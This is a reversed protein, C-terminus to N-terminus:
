NVSGGAHANMRALIDSLREVVSRMRDSVRITELLRYQADVDGAIMAALRNSFVAPDPHKELEESVFSALRPNVSRMTLLLARISQLSEATKSEDGPEDPVEVARVLRYPQEPAYENVIRARLMGDLVILYRGDTLEEFDDIRGVGVYPRVIPRDYADTGADPAMTAMAIPREQEIADRTMQRYRPEFIHLPLTTGPFLVVSPLPFIILSELHARMM